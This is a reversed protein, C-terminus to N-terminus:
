RPRSQGGVSPSSSVSSRGPAPGSSVPESRLRTPGSRVSASGLRTREAPSSYRPVEAPVPGEQPLSDRIVPGTAAQMGMGRVHPSLWAPDGRITTVTSRRVPTSLRLNALARVREAHDLPVPQSQGFTRVAPAAPSRVEVVTGPHPAIPTPIPGLDAPSPRFVGLTRGDMALQEARMGAGTPAELSHIAVTRVRAHTASAVHDPTLGTNSITRGDDTQFRTVPASQAYVRQATQARATWPHLHRENFAMWPVFAFAESALGFDFGVGVGRGNFSLGLGPQYTAGPPLPAWGCHGNTYRWCVWSPGWVKDPTWCWGWRQNHFWRGYHFPAWGWSYDSAWYWGYDTYLWQGGDLYPQWSPDLVAASPQWCLGAGDVELWNGYPALANYFGPEATDPPPLYSDPPAPAADQAPPAADSAPEPAPLLGTTTPAPPEPPYQWAAPTEEPAPVPNQAQGQLAQDHQLIAIVVASPVGLDKLFLIEQANLAFVEASKTAFALVVSSDVGATALKVLDGVPGDTRVDAPAPRDAAVPVAIAESLNPPPAASSDQPASSATEPSAQRAWGLTMPLIVLALRVSSKWLNQDRM